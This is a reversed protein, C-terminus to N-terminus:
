EELPPHVQRYLELTKDVMDRTLRHDVGAPFEASVTYGNQRLQEVYLQASQVAVPNDTQGIIVLVPVNKANQDAPYYYPAALIAAGSLIGPYDIMIAQVFQGGASYGAFFFKEQLSVDRAVQNLVKALTVRGSERHWNGSAEALSPCVLVFGNQDAYSQWTNWCDLGTGGEPHIGVFVPWKQDATYNAPTYLYYQSPSDHLYDGPDLPERSPVLSCGSVLLWVLLTSLLRSYRQSM